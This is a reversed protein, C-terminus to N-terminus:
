KELLELYLNAVNVSNYKNALFEIEKQKPKRMETEIKECWAKYDKAKDVYNLYGETVEPISTKKTTLVPVEWFMAEIPPMGFGEFVSPFLFAACEKYLRNREANSVFKTITIDKSLGNEDILIQLKSHENGGIGSIVLPFFARSNKKKLNGMAKILTSLNKHPMLSSVTYYFKNPELGYKKLYEIPALENRDISVANYITVVKEDKNTLHYTKIIDERVYESIAIIKESTHISWWWSLKMWLVKGKSFYEPYHKAQLDHIVTYFRIRRTGLFPKSYVPELCIDIGKGRLIKGLKMNQWILRKKQNESVTKCKCIEFRSDMAYKKFTEINDKALLLVIEFKKESLLFGDLLNRIYAETGGVKNHRVWTLDIAFKKM